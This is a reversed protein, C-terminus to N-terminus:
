RSPEHLGAAIGPDDHGDPDVRDIFTGEPSPGMDALFSIFGTLPDSWRPCVQIFRNYSPKDQRDPDPALTDSDPM